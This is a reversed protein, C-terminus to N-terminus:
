CGTHLPDLVQQCWPRRDENHARRYLDLRRRFVNPLLYDCEALNLRRMLQQEALPNGIRNAGLNHAFAGASLTVADKRSSYEDFRNLDPVLWPSQFERHSFVRRGHFLPGRIVVDFRRV